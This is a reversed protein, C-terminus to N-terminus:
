CVQCSSLSKMNIFQWLNNHDTFVFVECKAYELDYYWTKFAEIITLLEQDHTKYQAEIPIMKWSFFALPYWQGIKSKSFNSDKHIVHGSCHQDSTM